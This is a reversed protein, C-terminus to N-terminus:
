RQLAGFVIAYYGIWITSYLTGAIGTIIGLNALARGNAERRKALVGFLIALLPMALAWGVFLSAILGLVGLASAIWGFTRKVPLTPQDPLAAPRGITLLQATSLTRLQSTDTSLETPTPATHGPATPEPDTPTSETPEDAATDSAERVHPGDPVAPTDTSPM